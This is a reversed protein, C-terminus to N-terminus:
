GRTLEFKLIKGVILNSGCQLCISKGAGSECGLPCALEFQAAIYGYNDSRVGIIGNIIGLLGVVYEGNSRKYVQIAPHTALRENCKVRSEVLRSIAEPDRDLADNLVSIVHEALEIKNMEEAGLRNGVYIENIIAPKEYPKKSM